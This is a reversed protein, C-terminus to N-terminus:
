IINISVLSDYYSVPTKYLIRYQGSQTFTHGQVYIGPTTLDEIMNGTRVVSGGQSKWIKFEINLGSIGKGDDDAIFIQLYYTKNIYGTEM